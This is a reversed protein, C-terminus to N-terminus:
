PRLGRAPVRQDASTARAPVRHCLRAKRASPTAGCLPPRTPRPARTAARTLCLAAAGGPVQVRVPADSPPERAPVLFRRTVWGSEERAAAAAAAGGDRWTMAAPPACGGRPLSPAADLAEAAFASSSAVSKAARIGKRLSSKWFSALTGPLSAYSFNFLGYAATVGPLVGDM